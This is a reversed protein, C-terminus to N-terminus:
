VDQKTLFSKPESSAMLIILPIQGQLTLETIIAAVSYGSFTYQPIYQLARQILLHSYLLAYFNPKTLGKQNTIYILKHKHYYSRKLGDSYNFYTFKYLM